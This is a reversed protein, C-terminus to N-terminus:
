NGNATDYNLGGGGSGDILHGVRNPVTSQLPPRVMNLRFIKVSTLIFVTLNCGCKKQHLRKDEFYFDEGYKQCM